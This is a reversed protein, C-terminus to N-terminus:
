FHQMPRIAAALTPVQLLLLGSDVGFSWCSLFFGIDVREM